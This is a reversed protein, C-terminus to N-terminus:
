FVVVKAKKKAPAPATGAAGNRAVSAGGFEEEGEADVRVDPM